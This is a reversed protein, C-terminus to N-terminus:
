KIYDGKLFKGIITVVLDGNCRHVTEIVLPKGEPDPNVEWVGFDQFGPPNSDPIKFKGDAEEDDLFRIKAEHKGFRGTISIFDECKRVKEGVVRIYLKGDKKYGHTIYMNKVVPRNRDLVRQVQMEREYVFLTSISLLSGIFIAVLAVLVHTVVVRKM